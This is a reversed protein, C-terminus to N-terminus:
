IYNLKLTQIKVRPIVLKLWEPKLITRHLKRVLRFYYVKVIESAVCM